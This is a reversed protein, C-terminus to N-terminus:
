QTGVYTQAFKELKKNNWNKTSLEDDYGGNFMVNVDLVEWEEGSAEDHMQGYYKGNISVILPITIKNVTWEIEFEHDFEYEMDNYEYGKNSGWSPSSKKIKINSKNVKPILDKELKKSLISLNSMYFDHIMDEQDKEKLLYEIEERIIERLKDM